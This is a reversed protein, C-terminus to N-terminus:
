RYGTSCLNQRTSGGTVDHDNYVRANDVDARASGQETGGVIRPRVIEDPTQMTEITRGRCREDSRWDAKARRADRVERTGGRPSASYEASAVFPAMM